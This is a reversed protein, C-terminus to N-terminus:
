GGQVHVTPEDFSVEILAADKAEESLYQHGARGTLFPELLGAAVRWGDRDLAWDFDADAAVSRPGRLGPEESARTHRLRLSHVGQINVEPASALDISKESTQALGMLAEHLWRAAAKSTLKLLITPGFAGLDYDGVILREASDQM